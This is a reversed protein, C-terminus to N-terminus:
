SKVAAKITPVSALGQKLPGETQMAKLVASAIAADAHAAGGIQVPFLIAVQFGDDSMRLHSDVRAPDVPAGMWGEIQRQQADIAPKYTQYVGEIISCLAKSVAETDADPKLKATLEHWAYETGPLQKYLPTGTQFLVSNAFVAVRGTSHLETGSGVLEMMYFRAIGVEIVTGTVGAVTIRDGVRVGYRGIIFFYAAVSLLITQLGVAIGATIFGAFTALSSFETIFGFIVILGGLFGIVVRRVVLLQRRRRLDAVYRVTARSWAQSIVALLLLAGAIFALRILLSRLIAQYEADVAIRWSTLTGRQQDLLMVEQSLPLMADSLVRFTATLQDFQKRTALIDQSDTTPTAKLDVNQQSLADGQKILSRLVHTFPERLSNAQTRLHDTEAIQQDISRRASLLDFLVSAQTVLGSKETDAVNELAPATISKGTGANLEPASSALRELDGTLGTHGETDTFKAIRNVADLTAQLLKFEGDIQEQKQLLPARTRANSHAIAADNAADVAQLAAIQSMIRARAAAIRQNAPQAGTAEQAAPAGGAPANVRTLLAAENRASQFALQAIQTAQAKAQEAYLIDSPEGAKQIKTTAARYYRLIHSLHQLILQSQAKVDINIGTLPALRTIQQELTLTPAVRATRPSSPENATSGEQAPQPASAPGAPAATVPTAPLSTRQPASRKASTQASLAPSLLLSALLTVLLSNLSPFSRTHFPM